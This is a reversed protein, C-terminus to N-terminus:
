YFWNIRDCGISNLNSYDFGTEFRKLQQKVLVESVGKQSIQKTIQFQLM